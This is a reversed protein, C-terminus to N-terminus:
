FIGAMRDGFHHALSGPSKLDAIFVSEPDQIPIRKIKNKYMAILAEKVADNPGLTILNCTALDVAKTECLNKCDTIVKKVIDKETIIGVPNSGDFVLVSGINNQIMIESATIASDNCDISIIGRTM